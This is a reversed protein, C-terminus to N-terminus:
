SEGMTFCEAPLYLLFRLNLEKLRPHSPNCLVATAGSERSVWAEGLSTFSLPDWKWVMYNLPMARTSIIEWLVIPHSPHTHTQSLPHRFMVMQLGSSHLDSISRNISLACASSWMHFSILQELMPHCINTSHTNWTPCYLAHRQAHTNVTYIFAHVM